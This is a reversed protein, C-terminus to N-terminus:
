GLDRPAARTASTTKVKMNRIIMRTDLSATAPARDLAPSVVCIQAGDFSLGGSTTSGIDITLNSAVGLSLSCPLVPPVTDPIKVNIQYLGVQGPTLGVFAPFIPGPVGAINPNVYPQSPMANPRFDFQVAVITSGALPAPASTAEGTKMAPMTQGLGFVYIVVTEGAMAPSDSTVPTGDRHTVIAGCTKLREPPFADCGNLIHLNSSVPLVSFGKSANGNEIVALGTAAGQPPLVLEFPIQVTIATIHCDPTSTSPLGDGNGCVPVQQLSLLPIASPQQEM